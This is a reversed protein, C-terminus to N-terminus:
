RASPRRGAAHSSRRGPPSSRRARGRSRGACRWSPSTIRAHPTGCRGSNWCPATCSRPPPTRMPDWPEARRAVRGGRGTPAPLPSRTRAAASLHWSRDDPHYLGRAARLRGGGLVIGIGPPGVDLIVGGDGPSAFDADTVGDLWVDLLAPPVPEEVAFRRDAVVELFATLRSGAREVSLHRVTATALDYDAALEEAKERTLRGQPAMVHGRYDRGPAYPEDPAPLFAAADYGAVAAQETMWARRREGLGAMWELVAAARREREGARAASVAWFLPFLNNDWVDAAERIAERDFLRVDAAAEAMREVSRDLLAVLVTVASAPHTTPRPAGSPPPAPTTM